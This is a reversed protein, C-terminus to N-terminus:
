SATRARMPWNELDQLASGLDRWESWESDAGFRNYVRRTCALVSQMEEAPGLAVAERLAAVASNQREALWDNDIDSLVRQAAEVLMAVQAELAKIKQEPTM